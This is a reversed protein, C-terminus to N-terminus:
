WIIYPSQLSKLNGTDADAITVYSVLCGFDNKATFKCNISKGAVMALASMPLRFDRWVNNSLYKSWMSTFNSCFQITPVICFKTSKPLFVQKKIVMKSLANTGNQYLNRFSFCNFSILSHILLSGDKM